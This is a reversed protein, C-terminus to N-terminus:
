ANVTKSSLGTRPLFFIFGEEENYTLNGQHYEAAQRAAGLGLGLHRQKTSYYPDFMRDQLELPIANGNNWVKVAVGDGEPVVAITIQREPQNLLAEQANMLLQTFAQRLRSADGIISPLPRHIHTELRIRDNKIPYSRLLLIEQVIDGVDILGVESKDPRAINNLAAILNSCRTVSEMVKGLMRQSEPSLTADLGILESYALIAGLCNNVDHTVGSVCRGTQAFSFLEQIGERAEGNAPTPITETVQKEQAWRHPRMRECHQREILQSCYFILTSGSNWGLQM